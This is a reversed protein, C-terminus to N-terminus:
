SARLWAQFMLVNWLHYQWDRRGSLHEDWRRRVPGPAIWGEDRLRREALLDEAWDRLPGRLWAGLPISFGMKPRDTLARPVHRDLIERLIWKTRSERVKLRAPLGFSFEIVRPDLFPVRAELSVGMSARDVKVLIDDPLYTLFDTLMMWTTYDRLGSGQYGRVESSAGSPADAVLGDEPRWRAVLDGYLTEANATALVRGIRPVYDGWPRRTFRSPLLPRGLRFALSWM